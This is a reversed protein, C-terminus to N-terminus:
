RAGGSEPLGALSLASVLCGRGSVPDQDHKNRRRGNLEIRSLKGHWPSGPVGAASATSVPV